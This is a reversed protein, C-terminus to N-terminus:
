MIEPRLVAWQEKRLSIAIELLTRHSTPDVLDPLLESFPLAIHLRNWLSPDLVQGDFIVIDIDMTRPSNKNETRVRGLQTEIPQIVHARLGDLTLVTKISAALNIFNPGPGGIAYNEWANSIAMVHCAERLLKLGHLLNIVPSINSGLLLYGNPLEPKM